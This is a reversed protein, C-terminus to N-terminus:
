WVGKARGLPCRHGGQRLQRLSSAVPSVHDELISVNNPQLARQAQSVAMALHTSPFPTPSFEVAALNFHHFVLRTAHIGLRVELQDDYLRLQLPEFEQDPAEQPSPYFLDICMWEVDLCQVLVRNIAYSGKERGGLILVEFRVLRQQRCM